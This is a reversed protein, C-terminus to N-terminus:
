LNLFVVSAIGVAMGIWQTRSLREKFVLVSVLATVVIGGASILPYMISAPMLPNLLMCFLNSCGNAVGCLLGFYWGRSLSAKWEKREFILTCAFFFVFAVALAILMFEVTGEGGFADLQMRQTTSCFGNGLFALSVFFIWRPTIKKPEEGEKKEMNILFLSIALLVIGVIMTTGIPEHRFIMGYFTPILLSYSTILTTLSLSGEHIALFMFLLATAYSLSFGLSYPVYKWEFEYGFGGSFFFVAFAAFAVLSLLGFISRDGCRKTYASLFTNTSLVALIIASLYVIEM